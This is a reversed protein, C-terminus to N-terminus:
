DECLITLIKRMDSKKVDFYDGNYSIEIYDGKAEFIAKDCFYSTNEGTEVEIKM